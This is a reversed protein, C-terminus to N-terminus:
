GTGGQRAPSCLKNEECFRMFGPAAYGRSRLYNVLSVATERDDDILHMRAQYDSEICSQYEGTANTDLGRPISFEADGNRGNGQWWQYRIKQFRIKDFRDWPRSAALGVQLKIAEKLNLNAAKNNGSHLEVKALVILYNIYEKPSSEDTVRLIGGTQTEPKLEQMLAWAAAPQGSEQLLDALMVQRSVTQERYNVNSLDAAYLQQLASIAKRLNQEALGLRGLKTQLRSVGTLSYAYGKKFDNNGPDHRSADEALERVKERLGMAAELNCNQLQADAAWALATGYDEAIVMDDPKLRIVEEMLRVSEGIHYLTEEDVRGGGELQLAAINNHSYSLELVWDPNEPDMEFLQQTVEQYQEMSERAEEYRDESMHLNGVYFEANGLQFLLEQSEPYKRTLTLFIAHSRRFDALAEVPKGQGQNVNGMQRFALAVKEGTEPSLRDLDLNELHRTAEAGILALTELDTGSRLREGLDVVFTALQEAKEREHREAVQSIVTLVSLSVAAVVGLGAILRRKRQRQLERQRLKDLHIGLIGAVLKLKATKKGDAWARADAALPEQLGVESLATPFSDEIAGDSAAAGDVIICFIRHARGFRAFQRIEENVWRSAVSEPSCILILNESDALAQKVTEGLDSASSLDDRDRFVPRLLVGAVPAVMGGV